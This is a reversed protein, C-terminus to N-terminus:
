VGQLYMSKQKSNFTLPSILRVGPSSLFMLYCPPIIMTGYWSCEQAIHVRSVVGSPSPRVSPLIRTLMLMQTSTIVKLTFHGTFGHVM